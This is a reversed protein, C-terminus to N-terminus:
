PLANGMYDFSVAPFEGDPKKTEAVYYDRIEKEFVQASRRWEPVPAANLGGGSKGKTEKQQAVLPLSLFAVALCWRLRIM